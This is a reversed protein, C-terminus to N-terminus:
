EVNIECRISQVGAWEVTVTGAKLGTVVATEYNESNTELKVITPDSVQWSPPPPSAVNSTDPMVEETTSLRSMIDLAKILDFYNEEKLELYFWGNDEKTVSNLNIGKFDEVTYDKIKNPKVFLGGFDFPQVYVDASDGKLTVSISEGVAITTKETEIYQNNVSEYPLNRCKRASIIRRDQTLLRIFEEQNEAGTEDLIFLLTIPSWQNKDKKTVYVKQFHLTEFAGEVDALIDDKYDAKIDAYVSNVNEWMLNDNKHTCANFLFAAAFALSITLSKIFKKKM